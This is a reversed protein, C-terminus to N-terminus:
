RPDSTMWQGIKDRAAYLSESLFVLFVGAIFNVPYAVGVNAFIPNFLAAGAFVMTLWHRFWIAYMVFVGWVLMEILSSSNLGAIEIAMIEAKDNVQVNYTGDQFSPTEAEGVPPLEAWVTIRYNGSQPFGDSMNLFHVTDNNSGTLGDMTNLAVDFQLQGSSHNYYQVIGDDQKTITVTLNDSPDLFFGSSNEAQAYFIYPDQSFIEPEGWIRVANDNNVDGPESYAEMFWCALQTSVCQRTFASLTPNAIDDLTAEAVVANWIRVEHISANVGENRINSIRFNQYNSGDAQGLNAHLHSDSVDCVVNGNIDYAKISYVDSLDQEDKTIWFSFFQEEIVCVIGPLNGTTSRYNFIFNKTQSNYGVFYGENGTHVTRIYDIDVQGGINGVITQNVVGTISLDNVTNLSSSTQTLSDDQDGSFHYGTGYKDVPSVVSPPNGNVTLHFGNGSSDENKQVTQAGALPVVLLVLVLGVITAYKKVM